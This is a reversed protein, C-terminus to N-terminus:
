APSKEKQMSELQYEGEVLKRRLLKGVPSKPIETVFVYRRPRKFNALTSMACYADLEADTVDNTRSIFATVVRGWKEDPLGVVAVESVGPHLSLLSEVEVPSVNEGGSIIMDDVRGTVFLDGDEDFYGTDSSFYWGDKFSKVDTDPRRWYGEFAEDGAMLAIIQGEQGAPVRNEPDNTDLAVVRIMQNIGSRGASGPKIQARQNITCTYIESSGYHNVFLDPKFAADLVKLLGETMPAGAFGLKRVSSIDTATFDPHNVVSHYLTPVLYLNDIKEREIMQLAESADFKPMCVFTGNTIASALLSRVGMTHYLPMVGLTKEGYAYLNQAVHAIAAAREARQRRPVGKPRSTTGSTYLMLSWADAGVRPRAPAADRDLLADFFFEGAEPQSLSILHIGDPLHASRCAEASFEEFAVARAESDSVAYSVEDAKARWNIPTLIVGSFQCAWHLTATQWRNRLVSVLHDGPQMGLDDFAAVLASISKYLDRYSLRVDGDVIALAGPERELSALFTTGLDLM